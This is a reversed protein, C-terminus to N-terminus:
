HLRAGRYNTCIRSPIPYLWVFGVFFQETQCCLYIDGMRFLHAMSFSLSSALIWSSGWFKVKVVCGAFPSTWAWLAGLHSGGKPFKGPQNAKGQCHTGGLLARSLLEFEMQRLHAILSFSHRGRKNILWNKIVRSPDFSLWILKFRQKYKYSYITCIHKYM